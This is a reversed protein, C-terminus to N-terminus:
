GGSVDYRAAMLFGGYYGNHENYNVVTFVGKDTTIVLFQSEKIEYEVSLDPGERAEALVFESGVFRTLDDDTHM